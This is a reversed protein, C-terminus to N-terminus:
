GGATHFGSTAPGASECSSRAIPSRGCSCQKGAHEGVSPNGDCGYSVRSCARSITSRTGVSRACGDLIGGLVRWRSCAAVRGVCGVRVVGVFVFSACLSSCISVSPAFFVNPAHEYIFLVSSLRVLSALVFCVFNLCYTVRVCNAFPFHFYIGICVVFWIEFIPSFFLASVSLWRDVVVTFFICADFLM